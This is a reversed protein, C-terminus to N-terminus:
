AGALRSWRLVLDNQLRRARGAWARGGDPSEREARSLAARRDLDASFIAFALPRGSAPTIYGALGSVFNLTGTKAFVQAPALGLPTGSGDRLVYPKLLPALATRTGHTALLAVMDASTIRSADGLGSHDVFSLDGDQALQAAHWASM